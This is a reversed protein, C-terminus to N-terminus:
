RYFYQHNCHDHGQMLSKTREFGIKPSFSPTTYFDTACAMHYLWKHMGTKEALEFVPCKKVCFTTRGNEKSVGYEFGLGNLPEWLLRLFDEIETGERAEKRGTEAWDKMINLKLYEEVTEGAKDGYQATLGKLLQVTDRKGWGEKLREIIAYEESSEEFFDSTPRKLTEALWGFHKLFEDKM